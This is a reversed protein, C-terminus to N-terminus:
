PLSIAVTVYAVVGILTIAVLVYAVAGIIASRGVSAARRPLKAVMLLLLYLILGLPPVVFSLINLMISRGDYDSLDPSPSAATNHMVM